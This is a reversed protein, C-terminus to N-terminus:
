DMIDYALHDHLLDASDIYVTVTSGNGDPTKLEDQAICMGARTLVVRIIRSATPGHRRIVAFLTEQTVDAFARVIDMRNRLSHHTTRLEYAHGPVCSVPVATVQEDKDETVCLAHVVFTDLLAQM